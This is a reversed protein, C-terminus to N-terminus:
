EPEVSRDSNNFLKMQSSDIFAEHLSGSSITSEKSQPLEKKHPTIHTYKKYAKGIMNLIAQTNDRARGDPVTNLRGNWKKYEARLHTRIEVFDWSSDIGLFEYSEHRVIESLDLEMVMQDRLNKLTEPDLPSCNSIYNLDRFQNKDVIGNSTIVKSCLNLTDDWDQYTAVRNLNRTLSDLKLEHARAKKLARSMMSSYATKRKKETLGDYRQFAWEQWQAVIYKITALEPPSLSGNSMAIALAIKLIISQTRRIYKEALAYGANLPLRSFHIEGTWLVGEDQDVVQGREIIVDYEIDIIRVIAKITMVGRQAYTGGYPPVLVTEPIIGIPTWKSIKNRLGGIADVSIRLEYATSFDEQFLPEISLIPHVEGDVCEFLSISLEMHRGYTTNPLDGIIDIKTTPIEAIVLDSVRLRLPSKKKSKAM